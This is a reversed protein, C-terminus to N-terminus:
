LAEKGLFLSSASQTRLDVALGPIHQGQSFQGQQGPGGPYTWGLSDPSTGPHLSHALLSFSAYSGTVTATDEFALTKALPQAHLQAAM